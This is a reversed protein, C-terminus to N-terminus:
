LYMQMYLNSRQNNAYIVQTIVICRSATQEIMDDIIWHFMLFEIYMSHTTRQLVNFDMCWGNLVKMHGLDGHMVTNM